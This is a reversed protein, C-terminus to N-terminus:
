SYLRLSTLTSFGERKLRTFALFPLPLKKAALYILPLEESTLVFSVIKLGPKAQLFSAIIKRNSIAWANRKVHMDIDGSKGDRGLYKDLEGKMEYMVRGPLTKKCEILYAINRSPDFAMIDVDGLDDQSVLHGKPAIRVQYDVVLLGSHKKFWQWAQERYLAGKMKNLTGMVSDLKGDKKVKLRGNNLLYRLNKRADTMHRFGILFNQSGNSAPLPVIPRRIYALLRGYRWPFIEHKDFGDAAAHIDTREILTLLKIAAEISNPDIQPLVASVKQLLDSKSIKLVSKQSTYVLNAMCTMVDMLDEFSIGADALFAANIQDLLKEGKADPSKANLQEDWFKSEFETISYELEQQLRAENFPKVQNNFFDKNTGIRGSPLLGMKPNDLGLQISDGINGWGSIEHTLAMLEDLADMSINDKGKFPHAIILEILLRLSLSTSVSRNGRALQKEVEKSFTSYCAIKAPILIDKFERSQIASEHFQMAFLLVQERDFRSLKKVLNALLTNVIKVCLESKEKPTKIDEPIPQGIWGSISELVHSLESEQVLRVPPIWRPELRMDGNPNIPIIMKAPGLPMYLDIVSGIQDDFGDLEVSVRFKSLGSLVTSMLQQEGFNDKRGIQYIFSDPISLKIKFEFIEVEISGTEPVDTPINELRGLLIDPLFIETEVPIPMTDIFRKIGPAFRALWFTIAECYYLANENPLGKTKRFTVWVPVMYADCLFRYEGYYETAKYIPAFERYRAVPTHAIGSTTVLPVNHLDQKAIISRRFDGADGPAFIMFNGVADDIPLLTDDAAKYNIFMDILSTMPSVESKAYLRSVAKWFKWLTLADTQDDMLIKVLDSAEFSLVGNGAGPKDYSFFSFGSGTNPLAYLTLYQHPQKVFGQLFRLVDKERANVSEVRKEAKKMDELSNIKETSPMLYCLYALKEADFKLVKERLALRTPPLEIDTEYWGVRALNSRIERWKIEHFMTMLKDFYGHTRAHEQTFEVLCSIEATPLTFVYHGDIKIIPKHLLPNSEFDNEDLSPDVAEYVFSQIVDPSLGLTSCFNAADQESMAVLNVLAQFQDRKPIVTNIEPQSVFQNRSLGAKVAMQNCWALIFTVGDEVEKKLDKDVDNLSLFLAKLLANLIESGDNMIGPFAIYNGGFFMINETFFREPADEFPHYPLLNELAKRLQFYDPVPKNTNLKKIAQMALSEFRINKGHNEPILQLAANVSLLSLSNCSKLFDTM